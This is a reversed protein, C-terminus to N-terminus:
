TRGPSLLTNCGAHWNKIQFIVLLILLNYSIRFAIAVCGARYTMQSRACHVIKEYSIENKHFQSCPASTLFTHLSHGALRHNNLFDVFGVVQGYHCSLAVRRHSADNLILWAVQGIKGPSVWSWDSHLTPFISDAM